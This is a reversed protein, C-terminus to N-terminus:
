STSTCSDTYRRDDNATNSIAPRRETPIMESLPSRDLGENIPIAEMKNPTVICIRGMAFPNMARRIPDMNMPKVMPIDCISYDRLNDINM